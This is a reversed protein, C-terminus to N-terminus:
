SLHRTKSPLMVAVYPVGDGFVRNGTM